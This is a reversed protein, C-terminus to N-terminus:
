LRVNRGGPALADVGADVGTVIYRAPRVKNHHNVRPHEELTVFPVAGGERRLEVVHLFVVGDAEKDLVLYSSARSVM